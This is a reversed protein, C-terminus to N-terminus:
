LHDKNLLLILGIGALGCHISLAEASLDSLLEDIRKNVDINFSKFDCKENPFYLIHQWLYNEFFETTSLDLDVIKIKKIVQNRLDKYSDFRLLFKRLIYLNAVNEQEYNNKRQLFLLIRNMITRVDIKYEEFQGIEMLTFIISNIISLPKNQNNTAMLFYFRYTNLIEIIREHYKVYNSRDIVSTLYIGSSSLLIRGHQDIYNSEDRFILNEVDSFFDDDDSEAFRYKILHNVAYGIGAIGDPINIPLRVDLNECIGDLESDAIEEYVRNESYRSYHYLFLITGMKGSLFGINDADSSSMICINAIKQLYENM